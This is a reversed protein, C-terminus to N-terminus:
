FRFVSTKKTLKQTKLCANLFIKRISNAAHMMFRPNLTNTKKNVGVLTKIRLSKKVKMKLLAFRMIKNIKLKAGVTIKVRPRRIYYM